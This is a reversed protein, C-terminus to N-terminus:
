TPVAVSTVSSTRFSPWSSPPCTPSHTPLTLPPSKAFRTTVAVFYSRTHDLQLGRSSCTVVKRLDGYRYWLGKDSIALGSDSISPDRFRSLGVGDRKGRAGENETPRNGRAQAIKCRAYDM